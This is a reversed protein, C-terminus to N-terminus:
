SGAIKFLHTKGRIFIAGKSVAPCGTTGMAEVQNVAVEEFERGLKLVTGRGEESFFYIHDNAIMPSSRYNGKVREKWQEEGTKADLCAAVGTDSILYILGDHYLPL